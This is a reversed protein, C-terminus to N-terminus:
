LARSAAAPPTHAAASLSQLLSAAVLHAIRNVNREKGAILHSQGNVEVIFRVPDRNRPSGCPPACRYPTTVNRHLAAPTLLQRSPIDTSDLRVVTPIAASSRQGKSRPANWDLRQQRMAAKTRCGLWTIEYGGGTAWQAPPNRHTRLDRSTEKHGQAGGLLVAPGSSALVSSRQLQLPRLCTL